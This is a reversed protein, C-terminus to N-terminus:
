RIGCVRDAVAGFRKVSRIGLRVLGFQFARYIFDTVHARWGAVGVESCAGVRLCSLVEDGRGDTRNTV